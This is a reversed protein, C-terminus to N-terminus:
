YKGNKTAYNGEIQKYCNACKLHNKHYANGDVVIYEGIIKEGCYNCKITQGIVTSAALLLVILYTKTLINM